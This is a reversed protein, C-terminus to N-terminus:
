EADEQTIGEGHVGYKRRAIADPSNFSQGDALAVSMWGIMADKIMEIADALNEGQSMCGPLSPVQVYLAEDETFDKGEDAPYFECIYGYIILTFM